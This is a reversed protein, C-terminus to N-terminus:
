GTELGTEGDKRRSLRKINRKCIGGGSIKKDRGVLVVLDVQAFHKSTNAIRIATLV